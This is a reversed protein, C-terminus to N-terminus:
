PEENIGNADWAEFMFASWGETTAIVFLNFLSMGMHDWHFDYRIWDGGNDMCDQITKINEM